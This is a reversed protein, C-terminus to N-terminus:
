QPPKTQCHSNCLDQRQSYNLLLTSNYFNFAKTNTSTRAKALFVLKNSTRAKALFVLKNSTRAKALFVLKNPTRAKALFVLKNPTRAKALFVLKNSTRAKALFVLKCSAGAQAPTVSSPSHKIANTNNIWSRTCSTGRM